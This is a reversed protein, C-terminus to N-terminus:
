VFDEFTEMLKLLVMWLFLSYPTLVVRGLICRLRLWTVYNTIGKEMESIDIDFNINKDKLEGQYFKTFSNEKNTGM